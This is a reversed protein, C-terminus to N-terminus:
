RAQPPAFQQAPIGQNIRVEQVTARLFNMATEGQRMPLQWASISRPYRFRVDGSAAGEAWDRLIYDETPLGQAADGDVRVIGPWTAQVNGQADRTYALWFTMRASGPAVRSVKAWQGAYAGNGETYRDFEFRVGQGKLSRLTIFQALDGLRERDDKLQAIARAGESTGHMRQVVGTPQVVWMFDGSLIKTTAKGGTTLEQRFRDPAAWWLRMPGQHRTTGDDIEATLAVFFDRTQDIGQTGGAVYRICQDFLAEGPDPQAPAAPGAPPGGAPPPPATDTGRAQVTATWTCLALLLSIPLYALRVHSM